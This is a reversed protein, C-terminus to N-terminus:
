GHKSKKGEKKIYGKVRNHITSVSVGKEFALQAYTKERYEEIPIDTIKVNNPGGRKRVKIGLRRMKDRIGVSSVEDGTLNAIEKSSLCQNCYLYEICDRLTIEATTDYNFSLPACHPELLRLVKDWNTM